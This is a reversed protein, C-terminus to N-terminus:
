KPKRLSWVLNIQAKTLTVRGAHRLTKQWMLHGKEPRHYHRAESARLYGAGLLFELNLRRGVPRAFGTSLGVSWMGDGQWGDEWQFDFRGGYLAYVGANWGTMKRDPRPHFWYKAAVGAHALQIAFTNGIRWHSYAFDAEVSLKKAVPVVLGVNPTLVLDALLNTRLAPQAAAGVVALVSAAAIFLRRLMRGVGM